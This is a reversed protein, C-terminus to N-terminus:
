QEETLVELHIVAIFTVRSFRRNMGIVRIASFACMQILQTDTWLFMSCIGVEVVENRV